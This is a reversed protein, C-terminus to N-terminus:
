KMLLLKKSETYNATEATFRYIYVGSAVPQGFDDIGNWQVTHIGEKKRGHILTRIKQGLLNYIELKVMDTKPVSYQISTTPNFPNPYNQDLKFRTPMFEAVPIEVSVQPGEIVRVDDIYWGPKKNGISDAVARFRIRVDDFGEGCFHKLSYESEIFKTKNGSRTEGLQQWSEGKDYSLEIYGYDGSRRFFHRDWVRLVASPSNSLDLGQKMTLTVESGPVMDRGPSDNVSYEGSKSYEDTLGWSMPDAQWFELGSEFDEWGIYITKVPSTMLNPSKALDKGTIYYYLSDGYNYTKTLISTFIGKTEDYVLKLSDESMGYKAYHLYVSGTDIGLNDDVKVNIHYPGKKDLTNSFGKVDTVVPPETDKGVTFSYFELSPYFGTTTQAFITYQVTTDSQAPITATYKGETNKEMVVKNFPMENDVDWYLEVSKMENENAIIDVTVLYDNETNETDKLPDHVIQVNNLWNIIRPLVKLRVEEQVIAEYGGFSFYVTRYDGAYRVAGANGNPYAFIPIGGNIPEIEDPYQNDSARGPQYVDFSLGHGIPDDEVGTLSSFDSDDKLFRAHLYQEFFTKSAGNSRLFENEQEPPVDANMDWGIDQGSLFFRGGNDLYKQLETRDDNDLSPFAWECFWIVTSYNAM